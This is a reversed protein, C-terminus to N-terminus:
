KKRNFFDCLRWYHGWEESLSITQAFKFITVQTNRCALKPNESRNKKFVLNTEKKKTFIVRKHGFEVGM